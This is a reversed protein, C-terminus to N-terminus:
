PLWGWAALRLWDVLRHTWIWLLSRRGVAIKAVGQMGPRLADSPAALAAEVRFFNRGDAATAVPTVRSVVLPMVQGELSSLTLRGHQGLSVSAIDREDVELIIRYGELSAIEFLVDGRAVPSGLAQSLDGKAVVGDFPAVLRARALQDDLLALEAEAQELQAGLTTVDTRDHLALATRHQQAVEDRRGEWRRRELRLEADDLTGLVDGRRVVDGARTRAEAVFGDVPAV